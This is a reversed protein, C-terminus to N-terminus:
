QLTIDDFISCLQNKLETKYNNNIVVFTDDVYRTWFKPQITLFATNELSQLVAEAILGSLSSGM